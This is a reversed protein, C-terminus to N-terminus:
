PDKDGFLAKATSETLVISYINTQPYTLVGRVVTCPFIKFFDEEVMAGSLFVKNKGAVLGHGNIFDTHAAYEIGPIDNKLAASLPLSTSSMQLRHGNRTYRLHAAYVRKYAPFVRDFSYQYHVWLGILLAVSMGISLG